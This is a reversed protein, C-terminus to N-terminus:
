TSDIDAFRVIQLTAYLLVSAVARSCRSPDLLLSSYPLTKRRTYRGTSCVVQIVPLPLLRQHSHHNISRFFHPAPLKSLWAGQSQLMTRGDLSQHKSITIQAALESASPMKCRLALMCFQRPELKKVPHEQMFRITRSFRGVQHCLCCQREFM